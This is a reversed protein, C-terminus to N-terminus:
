LDLRAYTAAHFMHADLFRRYGSAHPKFHRSAFIRDYRYTLWSTAGSNAGHLELHVDRVGLKPLDEFIGAAAAGWRQSYKQRLLPPCHRDTNWYQYAGDVREAYPENFDGTLVSPIDLNSTILRHVGELTDFKKELRAGGDSQNKFAKYGGNGNPIHTTVLRVAGAPTSLTATHIREPWQVNAGASITDFPQQPWKSAIILGHGRQANVRPTGYLEDYDFTSTVEYGRGTFADVGQRLRNAMVEQLTIVDPQQEDVWATLKDFTSQGGQHINHSLFLM